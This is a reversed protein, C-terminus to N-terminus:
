GRLLEYLFRGRPPYVGIASGYSPNRADPMSQAAFSDMAQRSPSGNDREQLRSDQIAAVVLWGKPKRGWRLVFVACPHYSVPM